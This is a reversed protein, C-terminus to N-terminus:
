RNTGNSYSDFDIDDTTAYVPIQSPIHNVLFSAMLMCINVTESTEPSESQLQLAFM